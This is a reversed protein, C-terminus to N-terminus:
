EPEAAERSTYLLCVCASAADDVFSIEIFRNLAAMQAARRQVHRRTLGDLRIVRQERQIVHDDRGM